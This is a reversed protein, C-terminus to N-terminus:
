LSVVEVFLLNKNEDGTCSLNIRERGTTNAGRVSSGGIAGCM